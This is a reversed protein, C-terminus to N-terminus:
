FFALAGRKGGGIEWIRGAEGWGGYRGGMGKKGGLGGEKM